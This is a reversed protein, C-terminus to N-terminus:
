NGSTVHQATGMSCSVTKSSCAKKIEVDMLGILSNLVSDRQVM